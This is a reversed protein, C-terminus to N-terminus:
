APKDDSKEWGYEVREILLHEVKCLGCKRCKSALSFMGAWKDLAEWRHFFRCKKRETM